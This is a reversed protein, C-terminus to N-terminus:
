GKMGILGVGVLILLVGSWKLISMKEGLFKYSLINTWVYQLAVVPYLISLDGYKLAPLSIVTGLGYLFLGLILRWNKILLKINFSMRPAALKLMFTAFASIISVIVFALIALPHTAM